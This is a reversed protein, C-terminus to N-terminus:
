DRLLVSFHFFKGTDGNFVFVKFFTQTVDFIVRIMAFCLLPIKDGFGKLGILIGVNNIKDAFESRGLVFFAMHFGRCVSGEYFLHLAFFRRRDFHEVPCLQRLVRIAKM